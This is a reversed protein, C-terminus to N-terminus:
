RESKAHLRLTSAAPQFATKRLAATRDAKNLRTWVSIKNNHPDDRLPFM